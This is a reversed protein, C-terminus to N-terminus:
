WEEREIPWGRLRRMAVAANVLVWPEPRAHERLMHQAVTTTTTLPLEIDDLVTVVRAVAAMHVAEIPSTTM